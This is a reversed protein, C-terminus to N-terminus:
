LCDQVPNHRASPASLPVAYARVVTRGVRTVESSCTKSSAVIRKNPGHEVMLTTPQIEQHGSIDLSLCNVRRTGQRPAQVAHGAQTRTSQVQRRTGQVLKHTQWGTQRLLHQMGALTHPAQTHRKHAHARFSTGPRHRRKDGM